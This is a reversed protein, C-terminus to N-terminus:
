AVGAFLVSGASGFNAVVAPATSPDTLGADNQSTLRPVLNSLSSMSGIGNMTPVTAATVCIGLYHVGAYTTKYPAAMALTKTSNAGWATAGDNTTVGLKNYDKDYLAFWQNTPTVAGTSSSLFMIYSVTFDKPLYIAVLYLRGSTLINQNSSAANIRELTTYQLATPRLPDQPISGASGNILGSLTKDSLSGQGQLQEYLLDNKRKTM